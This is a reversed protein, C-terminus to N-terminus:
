GSFIGRLRDGQERLQARAQALADAGELEDRAAAELGHQAMRRRQAVGQRLGM